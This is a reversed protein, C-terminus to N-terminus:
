KARVLRVGFFSIRVYPFYNSRYCVRLNGPTGDWGGGRVVRYSGSGAGIPDSSQSKGYYGSDYWDWCWEWVNGSMDYIGLENAAKTGAKHTGYDPHNEGKDYSNEYYWAVSGIDNSGSYEYGRSKNGGRAAYEWEAETPLRYGNAQWNVSVSWKLKDSSNTNNPDKRSKDITYCPTLEEKLSRQNCYEIVDYWSVQEVPKDDGKFYSPSSGMVERWEKQTVEYKGIYFSSVSVKHVPKENDHGDNSGMNFTGGEVYVMNAPTSTSPQVSPTAPAPTPITVAPQVKKEFKFALSQTQDKQVSVQQSKNGDTTRLEVTYDGTVLKSIKAKQGAALSQIKDGNLYIDGALNTEVELNGYLWVTEVQPKPPAPTVPKDEKVEPALSFYFPQTPIGYATPSQRHNTKQLVEQKILPLMDTFKQHSSSIQTALAEVFPSNAGSGDLAEKGEETAFIIIQSPTVTKMAALGRSGEGKSKLYPNNRCADLIFIGTVAQSLSNLVWNASVAETECDYDNVIDADIPILYNVGNIQAGHGSFYFVVEDESKLGEGFKRVADRFAKQGTNLHSSVSFGKDKLVRELLQTDSVPNKLNKASSGYNANGILLAKRAASLTGLACTVILISILLRKM